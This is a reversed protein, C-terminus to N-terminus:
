YLGLAKKQGEQSKQHQPAEGGGEEHDFLTLDLHVQSIDFPIVPYQGPQTFSIYKPLHREQGSRSPACIDLSERIALEQYQILLTEM